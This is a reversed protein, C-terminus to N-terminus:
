VELPYIECDDDGINKKNSEEKWSLRQNFLAGHEQM